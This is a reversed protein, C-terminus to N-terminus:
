SGKGEEKSRACIKIPRDNEYTQHINEALTCQSFILILMSKFKLKFNIKTNEGSSNM